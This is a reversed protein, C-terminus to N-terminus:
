PAIAEFAIPMLHPTMIANREVLEIARTPDQYLDYALRGSPLSMGAEIRAVPSRDAAIRSLVVTAEGVIGSLWALVDPGFTEGVTQYEADAVLGIWTRNSQADQRSPYDQRTVALAAAVVLCVRFFPGLASHDPAPAALGRRVQHVVDAVTGAIGITRAVDIMAAIRDSALAASSMAALFGDLRRKDAEGTVTAEAMARLRDGADTFAAVALTDLATM